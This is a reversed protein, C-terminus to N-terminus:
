LVTGKVVYETGARERAQAAQTQADAIRWLWRHYAASCRVWGQAELRAASVESEASTHAMHRHLYIIM